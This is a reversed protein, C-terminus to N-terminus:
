GLVNATPQIVTLQVASSSSLPTTDFYNFAFAYSVKFDEKEGDRLHFDELSISVTISSGPKFMNSFAADKSIKNM